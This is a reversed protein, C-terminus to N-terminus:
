GLYTSLDFNLMALVKVALCALAYMLLEATHSRSDMAGNSAIAALM